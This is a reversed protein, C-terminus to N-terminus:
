HINELQAIRKEYEAITRKLEVMRLEREIFGKIMKELEENRRTLEETRELVRKELEVNLKRIDDEAKKRETIDLMTGVIRFPKGEGDIDVEGQTYVTIVRGDKRVMRHEIGFPKSNNLSDTFAKEVMERDENHVFDLFIGDHLKIEKQSFGLIRYTEDSWNVEKTRRDSEWNGLHAIQEAKLLLSESKYLAAEALKRKLRVDAEALEREIAPILRTLNDKRIYDQAGAKMADVAVDEGIKGSVIIFPIDLVKKKLLKLAELGSFHPMVYDSIVVDWKSKDLAEGMAEPTDIQEYETQYGGKKLERILLLADDESDEVVLVRLQKDM